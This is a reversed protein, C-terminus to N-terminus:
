TSATPSRIRHRHRSPRTTLVRSVSAASLAAGGAQDRAVRRLQEFLSPVEAGKDVVADAEIVRAAVGAEARSRDCYLAVLPATPVQRLSRCVEFADHAALPFDILAVDAGAAAALAADPAAVDARLGPESDIVQALGARIAPRDSVLLVRIV